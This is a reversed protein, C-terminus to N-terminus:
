SARTTLILGCGAGELCRTRTSIRPRHFFCSGIVPSSKSGRTQYRCRAAKRSIGAGCDRRDNARIGPRSEKRSRTFDRPRTTPRALAVATPPPGDPFLVEHIPAGASVSRPKSPHVTCSPAKSGFDVCSHKPNTRRRGQSASKQRRLEGPTM